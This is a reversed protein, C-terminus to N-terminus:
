SKSGMKAAAAVAALRTRAHERCRKATQTADSNADISAVGTVWIGDNQMFVLDDALVFTSEGGPCMFGISGGFVQRSEDDYRRAMKAADIVPSGTLCPHPLCNNVSEDLSGEEGRRRQHVLQNSVGALRVWPQVPVFGFDIFYGHKASSLAVQARYVDFPEVDQLSALYVQSLTISELEDFLPALRAARANVTQDATETHLVAPEATADVEGLEALDPGNTVEYLCRAVRGGKQPGAITVQGTHHDFLMVTAEINFMASPGEDKCLLIGKRHNAVSSSVFGVQASALAEAFSAPQDLGELEHILAGYADQGPPMGAGGKVRYGVISYRGPGDDHQLSEFLFSAMEPTHSRLRAYATRADIGLDDVIRIDIDM